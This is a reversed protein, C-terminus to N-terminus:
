RALLTPAAGVIAERAITANQGSLRLAQLVRTGREETREGERPLLALAAAWEQAEAVWQEKRLADETPDPTVGRTEAAQVLRFVGAVELITAELTEPTRTAADLERRTLSQLHRLFARTSLGGGPWQALEPGASGGLGHLADALGRAGSLEPRPAVAPSLLTVESLWEQRLLEWHEGGGLGEAVERLVRPRGLAFPLARRDELKLVHFGFLTEVVPSVEGAELRLAAEWFPAVWSGRRGPRLLGGRAAAGPEESVEGAVREFPEGAQIRLLAAEARGRAERRAEASAWRESLVVLHRVELELEPNRAYRAELEVEGLGARELILEQRLAEIQDQRVGAEFRPAGAEELRGEALIEALSALATLQDLANTSLGQLESETFALAGVRLAPKEAGCATLLLALAPTLLARARLPLPSPFLPALTM